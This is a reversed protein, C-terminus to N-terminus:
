SAFVSLNKSQECPECSFKHLVFTMFNVEFVSACGLKNLGFVKNPM